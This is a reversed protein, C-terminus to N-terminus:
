DALSDGFIKSVFQSNDTVINEDYGFDMDMNMDMDIDEVVDMDYLNNFNEFEEFGQINMKNKRNM